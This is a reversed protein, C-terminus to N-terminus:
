ATGLEKGQRRLWRWHGVFMGLALVGVLSLSVLGRIAAFRNTSIRDERLAEYQRRLEDEAPSATAGGEGLRLTTMLLPLATTLQTLWGM